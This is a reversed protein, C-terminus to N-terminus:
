TRRRLEGAADLAVRWLTGSLLAMLLWALPQTALRWRFLLTDVDGLALPFVRQNYLACLLGDLWPVVLMLLWLARYGLRARGAPVPMASLWPVLLLLFMWRYAHSVGAFFCGVLVVAGLVFLARETLRSEDAPERWAFWGRSALWAGAGLILGIAGVRTATGAIGLDQLLLVLGLKHCDMPLAFAGRHLEPAVSAFILGTLATAIVLGSWLRRKPRPLLYAAVGVVPYFKLGTAIGLPLWGALLWGRGIALATLVLLSFIVLDNNGRNLALLVGPCFLLVLTAALGRWTAPRLIAAVAAAFMAVWSAGLAFNSQRTLGLGGLVFWWDSYSHPRGLPDLPNPRDPNWGLKLADNAALVAYTDMFWFDRDEFGLLAILGGLLPLALLGAALAFLLAHRPTLLTPKAPSM